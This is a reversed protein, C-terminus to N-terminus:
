RIRSMQDVYNHFGNFQKDLEKGIVKGLREAVQQETVGPCTVNIHNVVPQVNRNNNFVNSVNSIRRAAESMQRNHDNVSYPILKEINGNISDMYANWKQMMGYMEDGPQLPTLVSDGSAAATGSIMATGSPQNESEERSLSASPVAIRAGTEDSAGKYLEALQKTM